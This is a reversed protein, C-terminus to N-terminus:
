VTFYFGGFDQAAEKYRRQLDFPPFGANKPTVKAQLHYDAEQASWLHWELRYTNGPVLMCSATSSDPLTLIKAGNSNIIYLLVHGQHAQTTVELIM